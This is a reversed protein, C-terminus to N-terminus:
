DDVATLWSEKVWGPIRHNGRYQPEGFWPKKVDWIQFIQKRFFGRIVMVKQECRFKFKEPRVAPTLKSPTM